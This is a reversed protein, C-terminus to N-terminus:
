DVINYDESFFLNFNDLIELKNAISYLNSSYQM